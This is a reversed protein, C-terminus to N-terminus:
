RHARRIAHYDRWPDGRNLKSFGIIDVVEDGPYYADYDYLDSGPGNM